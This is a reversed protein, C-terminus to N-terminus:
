CVYLYNLTYVAIVTASIMALWKVSVKFQVLLVIYLVTLINSMNNNNKKNDTVIEVVRTQM